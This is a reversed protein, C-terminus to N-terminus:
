NRYRLKVYSSKLYTYADTQQQNLMQAFRTLPGYAAVGMLVVGSFPLLVPNPINTLMILFGSIFTILHVWLPLTTGLRAKRETKGFSFGEESLGSTIREFEKDVSSSPLEESGM